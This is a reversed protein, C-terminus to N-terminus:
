SESSGSHDLFGYQVGLEISFTQPKNMVDYQAQKMEEEFYKKQDEETMHQPPGAAMARRQQARINSVESKQLQDAVEQWTNYDAPALKVKMQTFDAVKIQARVQEQVLPMFTNYLASSIKVMDEPMRAIDANQLQDENEQIARVIPHDSAVMVFNRSPVAHIGRTTLNDATYHPYKESFEYAVDVNEKQLVRADHSEQEPLAILSFNRGINSYSLTDVGTIEAGIAVPFSNKISRASIEHVIVSRMDGMDQMEGQLNVFQRQKFIKELTAQTPAWSASSSSNILESLSARVNVTVRRQLANRKFTLASVNDGNIDLARLNEIAPDAAANVLAQQKTSRNSQSRDAHRISM